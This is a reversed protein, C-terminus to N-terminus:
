TGPLGIHGIRSWTYLMQNAPGHVSSMDCGAFWELSSALSHATLPGVVLEVAVSRADRNIAALAQGPIGELPEVTTLMRALGHIASHATASLLRHYTRGLGPNGKDAADGILKMATPQPKDLYAPSGKNSVDRFDFQHARASRAFDAIQERARKLREQAEVSSMDGFLRVQECLGALRYNMTRRLRERASIGQETLYCGIAAAEVAGRTVTYPAFACNRGEIVSALGLLHDTCAAVTLYATAFVDRSPYDGWDGAFPEGGAEQEAPSGPAPRQNATLVARFAEAFAIVSGALDAIPDSSM